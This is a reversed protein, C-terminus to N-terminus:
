FPMRLLLACGGQDANTVYADDNACNNIPDQAANLVNGGISSGLALVTGSRAKGDDIKFDIERAEQATLATNTTNFESVGNTNSAVVGFVYYNVNKPLINNADGDLTNLVGWFGNSKSKPLTNSLISTDIIENGDFSGPILGRGLTGLHHWFLVMECNHGLTGGAEHPTTGGKNASDEIKGNGNGDGSCDGGAQGIGFESEGKADGPLSRYQGKFTAVASNFSTYQQVTSRLEASRVLDQGVLVAAIILGIIVLVISLEVLTFGQQSKYNKM